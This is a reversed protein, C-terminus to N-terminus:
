VVYMSQLDLGKLIVPNFSLLLISIKEEKKRLNVKEDYKRRKERVIEYMNM